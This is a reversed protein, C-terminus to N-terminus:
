FKFDNLMEQIAEDDLIGQEEAIWTYCTYLVYDMSPCNTTHIVHGLTFDLLDEALELQASNNFGLLLDYLTDYLGPSVKEELCEMVTGAVGDVSYDYSLDQEIVKVDETLCDSLALRKKKM